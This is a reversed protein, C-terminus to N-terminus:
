AGSVRGWGAADVVLAAGVQRQGSSANPDRNRKVVGYGDAGGRGLLLALCPAYAMNITKQVFDLRRVSRRNVYVLQPVTATRFSRDM